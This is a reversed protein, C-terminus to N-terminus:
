ARCDVLGGRNVDDSIGVEEDTYNMLTLPGSLFQISAKKALGM